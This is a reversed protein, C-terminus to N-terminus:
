ALVTRGKDTIIFNWGQLKNNVLNGQIKANRFHFVKAM